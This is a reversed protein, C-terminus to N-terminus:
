ANDEGGVGTIDKLHRKRMDEWWRIFWGQWQPCTKNDCGVPDKVRTCSLCPSVNKNEM